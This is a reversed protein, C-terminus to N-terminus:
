VEQVDVEINNEWRRRPRGPLNKGKPKGVFGEMFRDDGRYTGFERALDGLWRVENQLTQTLPTSFPSGTTSFKLFRAFEGQSYTKIMWKIDV